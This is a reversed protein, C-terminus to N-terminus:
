IPMTGSITAITHVERLLEYLDKRSGCYKVTHTLWELTASATSVLACGRMILEHLNHKTTSSGM